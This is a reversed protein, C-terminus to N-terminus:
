EFPCPAVFVIWLLCIASNLWGLNAGPELFISYYKSLIGAFEFFIFQQSIM